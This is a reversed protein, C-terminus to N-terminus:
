FILNKRQHNKHYTIKEKEHNNRFLYYNQLSLLGDSINYLQAICLINFTCYKSHISLPFFFNFLSTQNTHKIYLVNLNTHARENNKVNLYIIFSIYLSLFFHFSILLHLFSRNCHKVYFSFTKLSLM